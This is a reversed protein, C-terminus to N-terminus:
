KTVQMLEVKGKSVMIVQQKPFLPITQQIDKTATYEWRKKGLRNYATFKRDKGVVITKGDGYLYSAGDNLVIEKIEEGEQSYFTLNEVPHVTTGTPKTSSITAYGIGQWDIIRNLTSVYNCYIGEIKKIEEGNLTNFSMFNDGIAVWVNESVFEIQSIITDEYTTGHLINDVKTLGGSGIAIAIINSEIQVDNTNLYSVMIMKGDPSIEAAVPYGADADQIYTIRKVGLSNGKEDYGSVVHGDQTKEIAVIDGKKNLSFYVVPNAFKIDAKKGRTDFVSITHGMKESVAFYPMRQAISINKMTYTDAWIEEGELSLAKLGDETVWILQEENVIFENNKSVDVEVIDKVYQLTADEGGTLMAVQSIYGKQYLIYAIIAIICIIFLVKPMKASKEKSTKPNM